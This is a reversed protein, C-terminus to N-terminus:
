VGHNRASWDAAATRVARELDIKHKVGLQRKAKDVDPVYRPPLQGPVSKGRVIMGKEADLVRQVLVATDAISLAAPSGINYVGEAEGQVLASVLWEALDAGHMYSRMPTGDGKIEIARGHMCDMIFNGIAFRNDLQLYEGIFAFCRVIVTEVSADRCMQESRLKGQGYASVPNCPADEGINKVEPPQVGYVAGSSVYLVRRVGAQVAFKLVREAGEVIISYMEPSDYGVSGSGVPAAAHIVYDFDGEPFDFSRVDGKVLSINPAYGWQPCVKRFRAPNRSLVTVHIGLSGFTEVFFRLLWKGFFGTGGTLFIRTGRLAALRSVDWEYQFAEM